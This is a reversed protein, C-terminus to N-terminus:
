RRFFIGAIRRLNTRDFAAMLSLYVLAGALVRWSLEVAPRGHLWGTGILIHLFWAMLLSFVAPKVLVLVYQRWDLGITKGYIWPWTVVAITVLLINASWALPILGMQATWTYTGAFLFVNFANLWFSRKVLGKSLLISGALNVISRLAGLICLIRLVPVVMTWKDGYMLPIVLDATMALGAMMPFVITVVVRLGELLGRQLSDNQDQQRSFIPYAVANYIPNITSLPRVATEYAMRYIGVAEPGLFRGVLLYDLNSGLFNMLKDAMQFYGFHLMGRIEGTNWYLQPLFIKHTLLILVLSRVVAGSLSGFIMSIAGFGYAAMTLAVTCAATSAAIDAAALSSFRLHKQAVAQFPQGIALAIFSLAAWPVLPLLDGEHYFAVMLPSAMYVLLAVGCGALLNVWYVSSLQKDSTDKKQIIANSLGMDNFVQALGLVAWLMGVLGVERQDLM